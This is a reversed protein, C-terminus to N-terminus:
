HRPCATRGAVLQADEIGRRCSGFKKGDLGKQFVQPSKLDERCRNPLRQRLFRGLPVVWSFRQTCVELFKDDLGLRKKKLCHPPTRLAVM